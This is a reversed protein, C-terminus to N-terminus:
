CGSIYGLLRAWAFLGRTKCVGVRLLDGLERLKLPDKNSIKPFRELKDLLAKEIIETSGYCEELRMWAMRLGAAPDSVHVARIRRVQESSQPGLWRTLLDLEENYTLKLGQIVNM